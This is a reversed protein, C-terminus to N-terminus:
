EARPMERVLLLIKNRIKSYILRNYSPPDQASLMQGQKAIESKQM